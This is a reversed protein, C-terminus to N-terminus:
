VEETDYSLAGAPIRKNTHIVQTHLQYLCRAFRIQGVALKNIKWLQNAEKTNQKLKRPFSLTSFSHLRRPLRHSWQSVREIFSISGGIGGLALYSILSTLLSWSPLSESVKFILLSMCKRSLMDPLLNTYQVLHACLKMALKTIITPLCNYLEVFSSWSDRTTGFQLSYMVGGAWLLVTQLSVKAAAPQFLCLM